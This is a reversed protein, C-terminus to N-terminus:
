NCNLSLQRGILNFAEHNMKEFGIKLHLKKGKEDLLLILRTLKTKFTMIIVNFIFNTNFSPMKTM